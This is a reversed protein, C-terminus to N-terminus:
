DRRGISVARVNGDDHNGVILYGPWSSVLGIIEDHLGMLEVVAADSVARGGHANALGVAGHIAHSAERRFAQIQRATADNDFAM